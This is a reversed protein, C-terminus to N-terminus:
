FTYFFDEKCMREMDPANKLKTGAPLMLRLPTILELTFEDLGLLYETENKVMDFSFQKLEGGKGPIFDVKENVAPDVVYDLHLSESSFEGYEDTSYLANCLYPLKEKGYETLLLRLMLHEGVHVHRIGCRFPLIAYACDDLKIGTKKCAYRLFASFRAGHYPSLSKIERKATFILDATCIIDM